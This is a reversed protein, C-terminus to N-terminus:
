FPLELEAAVEYQAKLAQVEAAASSNKETLHDIWAQLRQIMTADAATTQRQYIDALLARAATDLGSSRGYAIESVIADVVLQQESQSLYPSIGSTAELLAETRNTRLRELLHTKVMSQKAKSLHKLEAARFLTTEFAAVVSEPEERLVRVFEETAKKQLEPPSTDYTARYLAGLAIPAGSSEGTRIPDLCRAPIVQLLLREREGASMESLLHRAIPAASPDNEMKSVLQEATYGRTEARAKGVEKTIMEVLALAVGASSGDVEEALRIVRGPHILNRYSRIVESLTAARESLIGEERCIRIAGALDLALPDITRRAPIESSAIFDVLVAEVISGAMVHVSKWAGAEQALKLERYDAELGARFDNGTVFDFSDM